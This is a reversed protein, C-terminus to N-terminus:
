TCAPLLDMDSFGAPEQKLTLDISGSWLSFGSRGRALINLAGVHDAHGKHGCEVCEFESQTKRNKESIYKCRPCTQSTYKPSVKILTGGRWMLKYELMSVFRSWGQDLISQNLRKKINVRKGPSDTNGKASRTMQKVNLDEVAIVAHSKSLKTSIKHLYDHRAHAIHEHLMAIKRKQKKWNSSFKVKKALRRQHLILKHKLAKFKNLPLFFTGNSLTAFRKVGVDIGVSLLMSPLQIEKEQETQISIYWHKGKRSVTINKVTGTIDRSKRYSIWGIKPLFIRNTNKPVKFGQPYRFSDSTWKRKFKPIKKLPQKKDFADRFARDLDKLKHQLAQSPAKSLFSYEDSQKWLTMWFSLEQYWLIKQSEELRSLNLALAKNWLFRCCGVYESLQHILETNANIRFRFAKRIIKKM